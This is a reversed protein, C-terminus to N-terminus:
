FVSSGDGLCVQHKMDWWLFKAYQSSEQSAESSLLKQINRLFFKKSQRSSTESTNGKILSVAVQNSPDLFLKAIQDSLPRSIKHDDHCFIFDNAYGIYTLAGANVSEPGLEAASRCSIAYVIKEKLLKENRGSQILVENEYGTVCNNSGHGNFIVFLPKMKLIRSKLEKINAKKRKLNIVQINKKGALELIKSSWASLYRTTADHDPATILLIKNM